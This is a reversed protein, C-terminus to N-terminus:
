KPPPEAMEPSPRSNGVSRAANAAKFAPGVWYRLESTSPEANWNVACWEQMHRELAAQNFVPGSLLRRVLEAAFDPWAYQPRRGRRRLQPATLRRICPQRTQQNNLADQNERGPEGWFEGILDSYDVVIDSYGEQEAVYLSPGESPDCVYEAKKVFEASLELPFSLSQGEELLESWGDRAYLRVKGKAARDILLEHALEYRGGDDDQEDEWIPLISLQRPGIRNEPLSFDRQAIWTVAEWFVVCTRLHVYDRADSDPM